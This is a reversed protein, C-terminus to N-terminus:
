EYKERAFLAAGLAGTIFPNETVKIRSDLIKSLNDVMAKNFAVGGTFVIEEQPLFCGVMGSIRRAISLHVAQAIDAPQRGKAILGIMESEAFVVCTSNIDLEEQSDGALSALDAVEVELIGAVKELFRGTGAACRDNMVFDVVKGGGETLIGKSDQGGIDIIMKVDPYYYAVGKAHCSIESIKNGQEQLLNRGYGTAVFKLEGKLDVALRAKEVMKEVTTRPSIGTPSIQTYVIKDKELLVLKTTRSGSDIGGFLM